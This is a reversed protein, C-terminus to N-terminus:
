NGNNYFEKQIPLKDLDINELIKVIQKGATGNGYFYGTYKESNIQLELAEVIQEYNYDVDIVNYGQVRNNQRTGINVVPTGIYSCDRIGASSNGVLCKCQSLLYIFLEFPIHNIYKFKLNKNKEKFNEISLYIDQEGADPNSHLVIVNLDYKTSIYKVAELTINIQNEGLGYETTVPHQLVVISKSFNKTNYYGTGNFLLYNFLLERLDTPKKLIERVIDIRPCGVNFVYKPNEGLQIIRNYAIRNSPFHIHALKTISHRISDDISGSSEGGMTHIIPINNYFSAIAVSLMEFRDGVILTFAPNYKNLITSLEYLLIGSSKTMTEPTEGYLLSFLREHITFGDDEIINSVEGFKKLLSSSGAILILDLKKSKKIELMASKLSSYNARNGVFVCIKRKM